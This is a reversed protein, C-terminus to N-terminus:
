ENEGRKAPVRLPVQIKKDRRSWASNTVYLGRVPRVIGDPLNNRFRNLAGSLTNKNMDPIQKLVCVKLDLFRVGDPSAEILATSIEVVRQYASTM